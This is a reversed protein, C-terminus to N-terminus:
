KVLSDDPVLGDFLLNAARQVPDVATADTFNMITNCTEAYLAELDEKGQETAMRKLMARLVASQAAYRALLDQDISM